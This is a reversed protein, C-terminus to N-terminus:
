NHKRRRAFGLGILGLGFLAIISPEPVEGDNFDIHFFTDTNFALGQWDFRLSNDAYTFRSDDWGVFNTDIVFNSLMSDIQSIVLGNFNVNDTWSTTGLYDVWVSSDDVDVSYWPSVNAVDGPGDEVLVDMPTYIETGLTDFNHAIHVTDGILLANASGSFLLIALCIIKKM